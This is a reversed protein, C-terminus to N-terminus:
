ATAVVGLRRSGQRATLAQYRKLLSLLEDNVRRLRMLGRRFDRYRSVLERAEETRQPPLYTFAGRGGSRTSLVYYPGHKRGTHCVCHEKGCEGYRAFLSGPLQERKQLLERVLARQERLKALVRGRIAEAGRAATM